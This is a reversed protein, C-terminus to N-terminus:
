LSTGGKGKDIAMADGFRDLVVSALDFLQWAGSSDLTELLLLSPAVRIVFSCTCARQLLWWLGLLMSPLGTHLSLLLLLRLWLLWGCLHLLKPMSLLQLSTYSGPLLSMLILSLEDCLMLSLLLLLLTDQAVSVMGVLARQLWAGTRITMQPWWCHHLSQEACGGKSHGSGGWKNRCWCSRICRSRM